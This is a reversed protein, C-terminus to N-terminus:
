ELYYFYTGENFHYRYSISIYSLSLAYMMLTCFLYILCFSDLIYRGMFKDDHTEKIQAQEKYNVSNHVKQSIYDFSSNSVRRINFKILVFYSLYISPM